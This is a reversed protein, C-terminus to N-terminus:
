DHKTISYDILKGSKDFTFLYFHPKFGFNFPIFALETDDYQWVEGAPTANVRKPKGWAKQIEDMSMGLVPEPKDKYPKEPQKPTSACGFLLLACLSLAAISVYKM